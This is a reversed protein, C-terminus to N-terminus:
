PGAKGIDDWVRDADAVSHVGADRQAELIKIVDDKERGDRQAQATQEEARGGARERTLLWALGTGMVAVFATVLGAIVQVTM